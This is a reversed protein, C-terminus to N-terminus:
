GAHTAESPEWCNAVWAVVESRVRATAEWLVSHSCSEFIRLECQKLSNKLAQAQERLDSSEGYIALVPCTVRSLAADDLASSDRIDCVLTTQYVLEAASRALRTSKRASHRGLWSSFTDAIMQDRQAGQLELSGAMQDAWGPQGLHGDILAIRAVRAPLRSAFALALLGGYSNGILVVPKRIAAADLLAELDDVMDQLRYGQAPRASMGHGRLDYLFVETLQAM